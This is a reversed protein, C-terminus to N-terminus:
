RIEGSAAERLGAVVRSRRGAHMLDSLGALKLSFAIYSMDADLVTRHICAPDDGARFVKSQTTFICAFGAARLERFAEPSYTDPEGGVWAFSSVAHGLEGEM